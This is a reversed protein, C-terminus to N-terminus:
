NGMPPEKEIVDNRSLSKIRTPIFLIGRLKQFLEL